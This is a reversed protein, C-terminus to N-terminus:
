DKDDFQSDHSFLYSISVKINITFRVIQLFDFHNVVILHFLLNESLKAFVFFFQVLSEISNRRM